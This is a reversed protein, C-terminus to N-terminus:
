STKVHSNVTSLLFSALQERVEQLVELKLPSPDNFIEKWSDKINASIIKHMHRMLYYGCEYNGPQYSCNPAIYQLKKKAIHPLGQLRLHAEMAADLINRIALSNIKKHLSCLLVVLSQRPIIVILQWHGQHLYPALYVEKNGNQFTEKFYMQVESAKNGVSQIAVPDLFGYINVNKKEICLHHLYMLWLQIVSVCIMDTGTLIDFIDRQCLFFPINKTRGVVELPMDLQIPQMRITAAMAGLQQFTSPHQQSHNVVEKAKKTDNRLMIPKALRAPWLIFNGPAEGVTQVEKTPVPIRAVADRVDLAVLYELPDDIYLECDALITPGVEESGEPADCSEKTSIRIPSPESPAVSPKVSM